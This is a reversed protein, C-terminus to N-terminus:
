RLLQPVSGVSEPGMCRPCPFAVQFAKGSAVFRGTGRCATCGPNPALRPRPPRAFRLHASITYSM